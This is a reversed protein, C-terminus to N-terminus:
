PPYAKKPARAQVDGILRGDGEIVLNMFGDRELTPKRELERPLRERLEEHSPGVSGDRNAVLAEIDGAALPRLRVRASLGALSDTRHTRSCSRRVPRGQSA